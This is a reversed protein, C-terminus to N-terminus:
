RARERDPADLRIVVRDNGVPVVAPGFVGSSRGTRAWGKMRMTSCNSARCRSVGRPGGPEIAPRFSGVLRVVLLEVVEPPVRRAGLEAAGEGAPEPVVIVHPGVRADPHPPAGQELHELGDVRWRLTSGLMVLAPYGIAAIATAEARKLRSARWDQDTM